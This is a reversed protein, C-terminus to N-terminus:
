SPRGVHDLKDLAARLMAQPDDADQQLTTDGERDTERRHFAAMDDGSLAARRRREELALELRAVLAALGLGELPVAGVPVREPARAPEASEATQQEFFATGLEDDDEGRHDEHTELRESEEIFSLAGTELPADVTGASPAEVGSAEVSAAEEDGRDRVRDERRMRALGAVLRDAEARQSEFEPQDDRVADLRDLDAGRDVLFDGDADVIPAPIAADDRDDTEFVPDDMSDDTQDDPGDEKMTERWADWASPGPSADGSDTETMAGSETSYPDAPPTDELAADQSATRSARRAQWAVFLGLVAGIAAAAIAIAIRATDGLPPQAAPFVASLGTAAAASEFIAAPLVFAGGGLLAAFWVAVAAPFAPHSSLPRATRASTM